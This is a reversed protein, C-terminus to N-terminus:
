ERGYCIDITWDLEQIVQEEKIVTNPDYYRDKELEGDEVAKLRTFRAATQLYGVMYIVITDLEEPTLSTESAMQHFICEELDTFRDRIENVNDVRYLKALASALESVEWERKPTPM